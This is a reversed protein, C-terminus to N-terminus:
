LQSEQTTGTIKYVDSHRAKVSLKDTVTLGHHVTQSQGTVTNEAMCTYTGSDSNRGSQIVYVAEQVTTPKGQFMWTFKAPPVSVSSCYLMTIVGAHISTPGVINVNDPGYQIIINISQSIGYTVGNSVNCRFPGQDYRTVNFITLNSGGDSLQVRDSATVESSGNLWLFSLFSGPSFCSLSVSSHFELLDTSSSQTVTINAVPVLILVVAPDSTEYRLTKSNFAQCSYKGSHSQEIKVLQLEPGTASLREGNLFWYYTAAPRSVASCLLKIDSGEEYHQQSPFLKLNINEPGFSISLKVPDSTSNSNNLVQCRFPGQDYRTVNIITLTAGDDTLQVRDSATVESSGNLWLFSLSPGSSSCSLSVSSNFEILDTASPTIVVDSVNSKLVTLVVPQSTQSRMTKNNFAQCSYNGSQSLRISVLRLEPGTDSLKDGNLFWYYLAAPRSVASCTLGVDSGEDYHEQAPSVTLNINEPGLIILLNVPATTGSSVPNFVRCRFPGQDYRTVNYIILSSNGDALQVRDSPTVESSGNMWLFSLSSGSSSCSLRVSSNFEFMVTGSANMEINSVPVLVTVAPVQATQSRQTKNNFAQCSYNGSQSQQVHILRLEPDADSLRDGNLFWYYQAAPRSVASCSLSINSGAVHYEQPPNLTVSINEPGYSISLNVPDSTGNSFPNFVNCRFPGQDYRTVNVITLVSGATITSSGNLWLYSLSSGSASCSLRISSFEVLDTSSSPTVTVRSVPVELLLRCSGKQQAAGNPIITVKYEGSDNITLNSLELSGTSRILKVRGKYLPGIIDASTSTIISVSSGQSNEFSWTVVVFPIEPPTVTTTFTVTEGVVATLSDPLVGAGHIVGIFVVVGPYSPLIVRKM